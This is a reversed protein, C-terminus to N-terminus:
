RFLDKLLDGAQAVVDGEPIKGEPTLKDIIGPLMTALQSSLQDVPLGLRAGIQRVTDSGLAEQIQDATISKNPGTGVWSDAIDGLGKSVFQEVLGHLGGKQGGIIAGIADALGSQQGGKLVSAAAQGGHDDLLGM